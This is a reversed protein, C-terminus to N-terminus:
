KVVSWGEFGDFDEEAGDVIVRNGAFLDQLAKKTDEVGAGAENTIMAKAPALVSKILALRTEVTGVDLLVSAQNLAKRFLARAAQALEQDEPTPIHGKLNIQLVNTIQNVPLNTYQAVTSPSLGRNLLQSVLEAQAEERAQRRIQDEYLDLDTM